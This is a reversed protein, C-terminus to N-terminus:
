EKRYLGVYNCDVIDKSSLARTARPPGLMIEVNKETAEQHVQAILSEPINNFWVWEGSKLYWQHCKTCRFASATTKDSAQYHHDFRFDHECESEIAKKLIAAGRFIRDHNQNYRERNYPRRASGKGAEGDVM